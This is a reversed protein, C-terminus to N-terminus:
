RIGLTFAVSYKGRVNGLVCHNTASLASVPDVVILTPFTPSRNFTDIAFMTARRKRLYQHVIPWFIAAVEALLVTRKTTSTALKNVRPM